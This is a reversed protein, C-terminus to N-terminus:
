QTADAVTKEDKNNEKKKKKHAFVLTVLLNLDLRRLNVVAIGSM